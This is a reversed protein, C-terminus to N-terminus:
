PTTTETTEAPTTTTPAETTPTEARSTVPTRRRTETEREPTTTTTPATTTTTPQPELEESREPTLGPRGSPVHRVQKVTDQLTWREGRHLPKYEGNPWWLWALGAVLLAAAPGLAARAVPRGETAQWGKRWARHVTRILVFLISAAPLAVAFSALASAVVQVFDGDSLARTVSDWQRGLSDGVTALLRPLGVLAFTLSALLIPVVALVWLTVVVRVWPKLAQARETTPQGPIASQLTPKIRAFLDPVGTIDSLLYYGDLRVFPMLQHTMQLLQLPVLVLLPDYDTLAWVGVTALSFLMNFYLGGLDTRLRGGRSLRYSDTVDTYFAPWVLYIGGGIVGPKGGGYRCAAAHGFEHFGASAATLVFTLILMGPSYLLQRTAGGLGEAFLLWGVMAAFGAIVVLVIPPLFLLRFPSTLLQTTKESFLTFRGRIQLLAGPKEVSPNSGDPEKLVGLPRLKEEVLFRVDDTTATKGISESVAAAIAPLDRQGDICTLVVYLLDTLQVTQGSALRVLSPPEKYGSHEFEGILELGDALELPREVETSSTVTM